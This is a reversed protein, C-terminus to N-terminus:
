IDKEKFHIGSLLDEHFSRNKMSTVTSIIVDRNPVFILTHQMDDKFYTCQFGVEGDVEITRQANINYRHFLNMLMKSYKKNLMPYRRVYATNIESNFMSFSISKDDIDYLVKNPVQIVIDKWHIYEPYKLRLVIGPSFWFLAVCAISLVALASIGLNRHKTKL